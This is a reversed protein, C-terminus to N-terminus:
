RIFVSPLKLLIKTGKGPASEIQISGNIYEVREKMIQLGFSQNSNEKQDVKDVEFGSGDDEISILIQDHDQWCNIWVRQACSHKRVNSLAEQLIRILHNAVEPPFELSSADDISFRVDLGYKNRYETLYEDLAQLLDGQTSSTNRLNFIAERIDTYLVSITKILESLHAQAKVLDQKELMDNSMIAKIKIFGLAQAMNDHLERALRNQEELTASYRLQQHLRADEIAVFVHYGLQNLLQIDNGTFKRLKKSLLGIIGLFKEGLHLPVVLYSEYEKLDFDYRKIFDSGISRMINGSIFGGDFLTRGPGQEEVLLTLGELRKAGEGNAAWIRIEQCSEQYLGVVGVDTNVLKRASEAVADLVDGLILSSSIKTGLTYLTMADDQQKKAQAVLLANDIAVGIERGLSELFIVSEREYKPLAPSILEIVGIVTQRSVLPFGFYYHNEYKSRIKIGFRDDENLKPIFLTKRTDAIRQVLDHGTHRKEAIEEITEEDIGYSHKLEYTKNEESWLYILCESVGLKDCVIEQTYDLIQQLDLLQTVTLGVENLIHLRRKDNISNSTLESV